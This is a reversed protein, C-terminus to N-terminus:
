LDGTEARPTITREYHERIIKNNYDIVQQNAQILEECATILKQSAEIFTLITETLEHSM